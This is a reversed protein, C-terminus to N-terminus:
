RCGPVFSRAVSIAGSRLLLAGPHTENLNALFVAYLPSIDQMTTETSALSFTQWGSCAIPTCHEITLRWLKFFSWCWGSITLTLYGKKHLIFYIFYWIHKFWAVKVHFQAVLSMKDIIDRNYIENYTEIIYMLVDLFLVIVFVIVINM